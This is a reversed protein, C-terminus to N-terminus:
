SAGLFLKDSYSKEHIVHVAKLLPVERYAVFYTVATDGQWYDHFAQILDKSQDGIYDAKELAHILDKLESMMGYYFKGFSTFSPVSVDDLELCQFQSNNM